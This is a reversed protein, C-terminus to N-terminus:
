RRLEVIARAAFDKGVQTAGGLKLLGHGLEISGLDREHQLVQVPDVSDCVAVHLGLVDQNVGVPVQFQHVKAEGLLHLLTRAREATEHSSSVEQLPFM